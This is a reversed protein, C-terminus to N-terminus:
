AFSNERTVVWPKPIEVRFHNTAIVEDNSGSDAAGANAFANALMVFLARDHQDAGFRKRRIVTREQEFRLKRFMRLGDFFDGRETELSQYLLEVLQERNM